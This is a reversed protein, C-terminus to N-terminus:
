HGIWVQRTPDALTFQIPSLRRSDPCNSAQNAQMTVSENRM